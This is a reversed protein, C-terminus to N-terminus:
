LAGQRENNANSIAQPTTPCASSSVLLASLIDSCSIKLANAMHNHGILLGSLRLGQANSAFKKAVPWVAFRGYPADLVLVLGALDALVEDALSVGLTSRAYLTGLKAL